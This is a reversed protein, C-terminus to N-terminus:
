RRLLPLHKLLKMLLKELKLIQTKFLKKSEEALKQVEDAVVAFGRRHKGARGTEISANLALLNTQESINSILEM